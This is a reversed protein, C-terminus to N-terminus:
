KYIVLIVQWLLKRNVDFSAPGQNGIQQRLYIIEYSKGDKEFNGYRKRTLVV